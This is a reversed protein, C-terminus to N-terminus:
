RKNLSDLKAEIEQIEVSLPSLERKPPPTKSAITKSLRNALLNLVFFVAIVVVLFCGGIVIIGGVVGSAGTDGM